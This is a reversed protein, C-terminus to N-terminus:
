DRWWRFITSDVTMFVANAAIKVEVSKKLIILWKVKVLNWSLDSAIVECSNHRSLGILNFFNLSPAEFFTKLSDSM